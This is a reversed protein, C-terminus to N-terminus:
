VCLCPTVPDPALDELKKSLRDMRHHGKESALSLLPDTQNAKYQHRRKELCVTERQNDM